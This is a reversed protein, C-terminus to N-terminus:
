YFEYVAFGHINVGMSVNVSPNTGVGVEHLVGALVLDYNCATFACGPMPTASLTGPYQQNIANVAAQLNAASIHMRFFDGTSWPSINRMTNSFPSVTAYTINGMFPVSVFPVQSDNSVFQFGNDQGFPRSDFIQMVYALQRGSWRDRLYAIFSLQGVGGNWTAVWPLKINAQLTLESTATRWPTTPYSYRVEYVSHPGGGEIHATHPFWWTNIMSGVDYCYAQFASSGTPPGYDYYGRQWYTMPYPASFGTYQGVDWSVANSVEGYLQPTGPDGLHRVTLHFQDDQLIPEFESRIANVGVCQPPSIARIQPNQYDAAFAAGASLTLLVVPLQKM